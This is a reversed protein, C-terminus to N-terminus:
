ARSPGIVAKVPIGIRSDALRVHPEDDHTCGRVQPGSEIIQLHGRFDLRELFCDEVEGIGLM